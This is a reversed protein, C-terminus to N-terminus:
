RRKQEKEERYDKFEKCEHQKRLKILLSNPLDEILSDQFINKTCVILPPIGYDIDAGVIRLRICDICRHDKNKNKEEVKLELYNWIEAEM